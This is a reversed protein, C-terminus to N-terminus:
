ILFACKKLRFFDSNRNKAFIQLSPNSFLGFLQLRLRVRSLPAPFFRFFVSFDSLTRFRGFADSFDAAGGAALFQL